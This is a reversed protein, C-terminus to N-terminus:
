QITAQKKSHAKTNSHTQTERHKIEKVQIHAESSSEFLNSKIQYYFRCNILGLLMALAVVLAGYKSEKQMVVHVTVIVVSLLLFLAFLLM